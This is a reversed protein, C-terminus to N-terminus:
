DNSVEEDNASFITNVFLMWAVGAAFGLIFWGITM